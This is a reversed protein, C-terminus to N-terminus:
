RVKEYFQGLDDNIGLKVASRSGEVSYSFDGIVLNQGAGQSLYWREHKTQLLGTEKDFRIEIADNDPKLIVFNAFHADVSKSPIFVYEGVYDSANPSAQECATLAMSFSLVTLILARRM